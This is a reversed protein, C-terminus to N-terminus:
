FFHAKVPVDDYSPMVVRRLRRLASMELREDPAVGYSTMGLARVYDALPKFVAAPINETSESALANFIVLDEAAELHELASQVLEDVNDADTTSASEAIDLVGADKLIRNRLDAKSYNTAM